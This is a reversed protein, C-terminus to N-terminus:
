RQERPGHPHSRIKVNYDTVLSLDGSARAVSRGRALAQCELCGSEPAPEPLPFGIYPEADKIRM